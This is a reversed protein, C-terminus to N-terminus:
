KCYEEKYGLILKLINRLKHILIFMLINLRYWAPMDMKWLEFYLVPDVKRAIITDYYNHLDPFLPKSFTLVFEYNEKQLQIDFIKKELGYTIKKAFLIELYKVDINEYNKLLFKNLDINLNSELLNFILDASAHMSIIEGFDFKHQEM